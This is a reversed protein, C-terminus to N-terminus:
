LSLPSDCICSRRSDRGARVRAQGLEPCNL